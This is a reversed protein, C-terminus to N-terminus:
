SVMYVWRKISKLFEGVKDFKTGTLNVLCDMCGGILRGTFEMHKQSEYSKDGIFRYQIVSDETDNIAALPNEESRLSEKGM